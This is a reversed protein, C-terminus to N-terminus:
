TWVYAVCEKRRDVHQERRHGCHGCVPEEATLTEEDEVEQAFIECECFQFVPPPRLRQIDYGREAEDSLQEILEDTIEVGGSTLHKM